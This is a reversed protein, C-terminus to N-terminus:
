LMMEIFKIFGSGVMFIGVLLCAIYFMDKDWEVTVKTSTPTEERTLTLKM